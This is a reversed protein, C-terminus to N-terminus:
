PFLFGDIAQASTNIIQGNPLTIIGNGNMLSRLTEQLILKIKPIDEAKYAHVAYGFPGQIKGRSQIRNYALMGTQKIIDGLTINNM